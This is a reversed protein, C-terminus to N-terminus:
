GVFDPQIHVSRQPQSVQTAFDNGNIHPGKTSNIAPVYNGRQSFPVFLIFVFAQNDNAIM